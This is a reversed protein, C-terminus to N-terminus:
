RPRCEYAEVDAARIRWLKGGLRFAPLEGRALLDYIFTTSVGWLDALASVTYVTGSM